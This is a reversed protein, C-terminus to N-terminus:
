QQNGQELRYVKANELVLTDIDGAFEGNDDFWFVLRREDTAFEENLKDAIQKLNLEAM